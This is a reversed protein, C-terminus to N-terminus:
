KVVNLNGTNSWSQVKQSIDDIYIYSNGYQLMYPKDNFSSATLSDPTGMAKIVNEFTTGVEIPQASPDINGININYAGKKFWGIVCGNKDLSIICSGYSMSYPKNTIRSTVMATPTGLLDSVQALTSGLKIPAANNSKTGLKVALGGNNTWGIVKFNGDFDVRSGNPYEWYTWSGQSLYYYPDYITPTGMVKAVDDKTSGLTFAPGSSNKDGTTVKLNGAKNYWGVVKMSENENILFLTSTGYYYKYLPFGNNNINNPNGMINKVQAETYGIKILDSNTTSPTPTLDQVPKTGEEPTSSPIKSPMSTQKSSVTPTPLSEPKNESPTVSPQPSNEPQVEQPESTTSPGTSLNQGQVKNTTNSIIEQSNKKGCAVLLNFFGLVLILSVAKKAISPM